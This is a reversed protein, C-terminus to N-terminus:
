FNSIINKTKSKASYNPSNWTFINRNVVNSLIIRQSYHLRKSYSIDEIPSSIARVNILMAFIRWKYVFVKQSVNLYVKFMRSYNRNSVFVCWLYSSLCNQKRQRNWINLCSRIYIFTGFVFSYSSRQQIFLSHM